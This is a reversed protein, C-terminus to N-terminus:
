DGSLGPGEPIRNPIHDPSGTSPSLRNHQELIAAPMVRGNVTRRLDRAFLTRTFKGLGAPHEGFTAIRLELMSKREAEVKTSYTATVDFRYDALPFQYGDRAWREVDYDTTWHPSRSLSEHFPVHLLVSRLYAIVASLEASPGAASRIVQELFTLSAQTEFFRGIMSYKSLLNGGLHGSLLGDFNQEAWEVCAKRTPFLETRSEYVFDDVLKRFAPPAQDLMTQMRTILDFPKVGQQRALEFAEEFNGEYYFITLLLHFVRAELYEEFTFTPTEVVMEETEIVKEGTYDGINRAVVRFMTKMGFRKRSDPNSLPAGHLLMLQHASIRKVGTDMLDRVGNLFSQKTEGPMSLILEGYSQMGQSIVEKQIQTYTELKINSREINKLVVPNMSQVAATMPLAGRTKRIVKIIREGRNKGTTTRIYKPWGFQDQLYAIYDAVEEDLPYMGFNDDAFSLAVEPKVRQAIYLLDAKVNDLSHSYIKSNSRVASNCYSCTFPCGRAIQMLPLYGTSFFPDMWGNLYPSPIEDLNVIRELERGQVFAKSRPDIWDNGPVSEEFVGERSQGVEMYRNLIHLFAREGEYTPGRTAIDIEPSERLWSEQVERTLPYNPGGMLTLVKSNRAKAYRAFALSLNHNWSYSSLGLVDPAARDIAAKLQQPERFLHIDIEERKHAYAKAYAALNAVGLPYVDSSITIQNHGLDALYLRM